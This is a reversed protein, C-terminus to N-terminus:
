IKTMYKFIFSINVDPNDKSIKVIAESIPTNNFTYAYKYACASIFTMVTLIITLIARM